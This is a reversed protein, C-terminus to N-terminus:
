ERLRFLIMKLLKANVNNLEISLSYIVSGSSHINFLLPFINVGVAM